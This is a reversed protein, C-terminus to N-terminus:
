DTEAIEEEPCIYQIGLKEHVIKKAEECNEAPHKTLFKEAYRQDTKRVYDDYSEQEEYDDDEPCVIQLGTRALLLSKADECPIFKGSTKEENQNSTM